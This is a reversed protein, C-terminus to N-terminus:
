GLRQQLISVAARTARHYYDSTEGSESEPHRSLWAQSRSLQVAEEQPTMKNFEEILANAIAPDIVDDRTIKKGKGM